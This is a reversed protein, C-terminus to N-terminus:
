SRSPISAHLLRAYHPATCYSSFMILHLTPYRIRPELLLIELHPDSSLELLCLLIFESAGCLVLFFLCLLQLIFSVVISSRNCVICGTVCGFERAAKLGGIVYPTRGSAAIGVVCDHSTIDYQETLDAWAGTNSDEANEVAVRIASDGGAIVGVVIGQPIGYTPPCESADVVGLRGSTGAGIYFLRGGVDRMRPIIAEVLTNIQPIAINVALSVKHDEANISQLLEM